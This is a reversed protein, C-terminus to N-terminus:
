AVDEDLCNVMKTLSGGLLDEAASGRFASVMGLAGARLADVLLLAIADLFDLGAEGELTSVSL